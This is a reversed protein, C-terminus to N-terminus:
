RDKSLDGGTAYNMVKMRTSARATKHAKEEQHPRGGHKEGEDTADFRRLAFAPESRGPLDVKFDVTPWLM